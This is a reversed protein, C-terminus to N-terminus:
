FKNEGFFRHNLAKEVSIRKKPDIQLLESLLELGELGIIEKLAVIKTLSEERTIYAQM